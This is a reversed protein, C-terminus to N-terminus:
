RPLALAAALAAAGLGELTHLTEAHGFLARAALTPPNKVHVCKNISAFASPTRVFM